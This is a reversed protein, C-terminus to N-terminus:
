TYSTLWERTRRVAGNDGPVGFVTASLETVGIDALRRVQKEMGAESGTIALEGPTAVGERDLLRRYNELGAYRGFVEDAAARAAGTDQCAVVPLSAVVRRPGDATVERVIEELTRPGALWTVVGDAHHGAVRVMRPSLAGVLVSVPATGPVNFGGEVRYFQGQHSVQGDRLLPVLVSLYDRMHEAPSAYDLGHLGEIVPRHSVGVGLTLRGGCFAQTTAAQQALALPHRPYTPVISVGLEIRSTQTGAVSLVSLADVGRSFHVSWAAAFGDMESRRFEAVLDPPSLPTGVVEGSVVIAIRMGAEPGLLRHRGHHRPGRHHREQAIRAVADAPRDLVRRAGLHADPRRGCHLKARGGPRWNTPSRSRAGARRGGRPAGRHTGPESYECRNRATSSPTTPCGIARFLSVYEGAAASGGIVVCRTPEYGLNEVLSASDFVSPLGAGQLAPFRTGAGTGLVLNRATFLEGAVEVPHPDLVTVGANLVYEMGLHETSQWTM